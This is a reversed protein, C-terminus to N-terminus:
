KQEFGLKELKKLWDARYSEKSLRIPGITTTRVPKIGVFNLTMRKMAHYSPRGNILWYYWVPQDLTSVIHGTKGTLFKKWWVSNEIKEFVIGPLFVRDIFGKLIAPVSGWWVPYFLVLHDAWKIKDIANLLDPELETRKRYGFQLNPNFELDRVIIEKIDAGSAKAGKKYADYLAFNFSESDPHGQILLIKKM